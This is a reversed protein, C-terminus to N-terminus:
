KKKLIYKWTWELIIVAIGCEFGLGVANFLLNIIINVLVNVDESSLKEKMVKM